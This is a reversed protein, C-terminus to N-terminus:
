VVLPTNSMIELLLLEITLKLVNPNKLPCYIEILPLPELLLLPIYLIAFIRDLM